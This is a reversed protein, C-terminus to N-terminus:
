LCHSGAAADKFSRSAGSGAFDGEEDRPFPCVAPKKETWQSSVPILEITVDIGYYRMKKEVDLEIGGLIDVINIFGEFDTIIYHDIRIDPFRGRDAPYLCGATLM